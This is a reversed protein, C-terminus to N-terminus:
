EPNNYNYGRLPPTSTQFAAAGRIQGLTSHGIGYVIGAREANNGSLIGSFQGSEASGTSSIVGGGGQFGSVRGTQNIIDVRTGNFSLFLNATVTSTSGFNIQLNSMVGESNAGISGVVTGSSNTATPNTGGILNYTASGTWGNSNYTPKGIIYHVGTLSQAYGSNINQKETQGSQWAGWGLFNSDNPQGYAGYQLVTNGSPAPNAQLRGTDSGSFVGSDWSRLQTGSFIAQGSSPGCCSSGPVFISNQGEGAKASLLGSGDLAHVQFSSGYSPTLAVTSEPIGSTTAPTRNFAAAGGITGHEYTQGSYTLGLNNAAPGSFFGQASGTGVFYYGDNAEEVSLAATFGASSPHLATGTGRLRYSGSSCSYESPCNMSRPMIVNLNVDMAAFASRFDVTVSGSNLEGAPGGYSSYVPTAAQMTYVGRLEAAAPFASTPTPSGAVFAMQPLTVNTTGTWQANNWTGLLMLDGGAQTGTHALVTATGESVQDNNVARYGIVTPVSPNGAITGDLYSFDLTTSSPGNLLSAGLDEQLRSAPFGVAYFAISSALRIVSSRGKSDVDESRATALRRPHPPNWAARERTRTPRANASTVLASEGVNLGVCGAQTCVEIADLETTVALTGDSNYAMSFGSGRIGITATTTTVKYNERNRKGILGTIARMGGRALDVLFSDQQNAQADSYRSIKFQSNPQLSVMGGDTFRMQTRGNAGTTILDGSEIRSGNALPTTAAARQVSVDGVSFQAIGANAFAHLPYISAMAAILATQKLRSPYRM